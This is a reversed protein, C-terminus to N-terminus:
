TYVHAQLAKVAGIMETANKRALCAAWAYGTNYVVFATEQTVLDSTQVYSKPDSSWAKGDKYRHKTKNRSTHVARPKEHNALTTILTIRAHKIATRQNIGHGTVGLIIQLLLLSHPFGAHSAIAQRKVGSRHKRIYLVIIRLTPFSALNKLSVISDPRRLEGTSRSVGAGKQRVHRYHPLRLLTHSCAEIL